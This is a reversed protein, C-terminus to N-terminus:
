RLQAASRRYTLVFFEATVTLGQLQSVKQQDALGTKYYYPTMRFLSEVTESDPLEMSYRLHTQEVLDFGTLTFSKVQNKYPTDYICQKLEWLHEEGPIAMVLVGDLQLVRQLEEGCYPAFVNTVAACSSDAVPLHFASAVAFQGQPCTRAAKDLAIKSIDVGACEVEPRRAHVAAAMRRTYYGEGCGVDLFGGGAPMHRSLQGCLTEALPEYWGGELFRRRADVMLKDDGPMKGHKRNAPLLHVYGSRSRDFSHRRSCQWGAEAQTLPLGCIPCIWMFKREPAWFLPAEFFPASM